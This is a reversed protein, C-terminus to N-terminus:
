WFTEMSDSVSAQPAQSVNLAQKSEEPAYMNNYENMKDM